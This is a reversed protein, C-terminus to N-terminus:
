PRHLAVRPPRHARFPRHKDPDRGRAVLVGLHREVTVGVEELERRLVRFFSDETGVVSPERVLQQLIELFDSLDNPEAAPM